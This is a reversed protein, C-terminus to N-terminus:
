GPVAIVAEIEVLLDATALSQIGLLTHGPRKGEETFELLVDVIMQRHIDPQYQAVYTTMKVVNAWTVGLEDLIHGINRMAQQAQSKVDDGVINREADWAVQGAIYVLSGETVKVVQTYIPMIPLTDPNIHEIKM